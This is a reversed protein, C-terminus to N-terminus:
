GWPDINGRREATGDPAELGEPEINGDAFRSCSQM